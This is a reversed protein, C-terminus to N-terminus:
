PTTSSGTMMLRKLKPGFARGATWLSAKSNTALKSFMIHPFFVQATEVDKKLTKPHECPVAIPFGTPLGIGKCFNAM